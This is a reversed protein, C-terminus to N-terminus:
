CRGGGTPVAQARGDRGTRPRPTARSPASALARSTCLRAAVVARSRPGGAVRPGPESGTEDPPRPGQGPPEGHGQHMDVFLPYPHLLNVKELWDNTAWM